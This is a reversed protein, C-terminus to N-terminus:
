SPLHPKRRPEWFIRKRTAAALSATFTGHGTDDTSPVIELPNEARLAENLMEETYESGYAFGAPPTGSQVTQDWIAAIRTSGDLNRFIPNQYDIGSDLFGILIGNGMLHLTPYNQLPLIGAQDLSDTNIHAYCKPMATYYLRENTIPDAAEKSIYLCRYNFGATQTCPDEETIHALIPSNDNVIFDRYDESLVAAKCTEPDNM